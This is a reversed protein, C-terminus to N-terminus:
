LAALVQMGFSQDLCDRDLIFREGRQPEVVPSLQFLSTGPV